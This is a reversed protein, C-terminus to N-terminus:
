PDEPREPTDGAPRGHGVVQITQAVVETRSKPKGDEGTWTSVRLRGEVPVLDGRVARGRVLYALNDYAVVSHWYTEEVWDDGDKWRHNTTLRLHAVLAGQPTTRLEPDGGLRGMLTVRNFSPM